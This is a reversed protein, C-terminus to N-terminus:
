EFIKGLIKSVKGKERPMLLAEYADIEEKLGDISIDATGPRVYTTKYYLKGFVFAVVFFGIMGYTLFFWMTDWGGALFLNYGCALLMFATGGMAVYSTYPQFRGKYPLMDRSIGQRQLAAYFHRYIVATSGYNILQCATVLSILYTLAVAASSSVQVFAILCFSLAFMLSYIPIGAKTCRAFIAPAHGELAMGHLTRTAAFLLANGASFISTMILANVLSPLGHVQLRQM